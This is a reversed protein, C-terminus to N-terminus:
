KHAPQRFGIIRRPGFLCVPFLENMYVRDRWTHDVNVHRTERLGLCPPVYHKSHVCQLSDAFGFIDRM